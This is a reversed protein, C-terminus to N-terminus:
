ICQLLSRPFRRTGCQWSSWEPNRRCFPQVSAQLGRNKYLTGAQRRCYGQHIVRVCAFLRCLYILGHDNRYKCDHRIEEVAEQLSRDYCSRDSVSNEPHLDNVDAVIGGAAETVDVVGGEAASGAHHHAALRDEIGEACTFFPIVGIRRFVPSINRCFTICVRDDETGGARRIGM